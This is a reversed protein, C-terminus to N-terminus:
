IRINKKKTVARVKRQKQGSVPLCGHHLVVVGHRIRVKLLVPLVVDFGPEVLRCALGSSAVTLCRM